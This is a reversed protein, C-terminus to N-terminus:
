SKFVCLRMGHSSFAPVCVVHFACQPAYWPILVYSRMVHSVCLSEYLTDFLVFMCKDCLRLYAWTCARACICVCACRYRRPLVLLLLLWRCSCTKDLVLICKYTSCHVGQQARTLEVLECAPGQVAAAHHEAKSTRHCALAEQRDADYAQLQALEKRAPKLNM